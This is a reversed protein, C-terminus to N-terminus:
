NGGDGAKLLYVTDLSLCSAIRAIDEADAALIRSLRKEIPVDKRLLKARSFYADIDIASDGIASYACAISEKACALEEKTIEGRRCKSIEARIAREAEVSRRCDIGASVRLIGTPLSAGAQVSYCLSKKERVNMFLKAMPSDSLIETFLPYLVADADGLYVGTRYGLVLVSQTGDTEEVARRPSKARPRRHVLARIDGSGRLPSESFLDKIEAGSAPGVYSFHVESCNLLQRYQEYLMRPTIELTEEETGVTPVDYRSRDRMLAGCRAIAYATKQNKIARLADLHARREREVADPPFGQEPDAIPDLLVSLLLSAIKERLKTEVPVFRESLFEVTFALVRMDGIREFSISLDSGYLEDLRIQLARESPFSRCTRQLLRPVLTDAASRGVTVPFFLRVSLIETKFRDTTTYHLYAGEGFPLTEMCPIPDMMGATM